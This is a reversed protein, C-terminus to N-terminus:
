GFSVGLRFASASGVELAMQLQLASAGEPMAFDSHVRLVMGKPTESVAAAGPGVVGSPGASASAPQLTDAAASASQALRAATLARVACGTLLRPMTM